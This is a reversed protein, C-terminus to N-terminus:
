VLVLLSKSLFWGAALARPVELQVGESCLTALFRFSELVHFFLGSVDLTVLNGCEDLLIGANMSCSCRFLPVSPSCWESSCISFTALFQLDTNCSSNQAPIYLLLDVGLCMVFSSCFVFSLSVITELILHNFKHTLKTPGAVQDSM